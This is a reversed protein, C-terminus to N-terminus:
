ARYVAGGLIECSQGKETGMGLYSKGQLCFRHCLTFVLSPFPSTRSPYCVAIHLSPHGFSISWSSWLCLCQLLEGFAPSFNM